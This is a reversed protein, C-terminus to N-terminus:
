AWCLCNGFRHIRQHPTKAPQQLLEDVRARTARVRVNGDAYIQKLGELETQAAVLEGELTAAAEIMAKGQTPVDLATNKSAFNSFDKEATELDQQVQTLRSELFVRERHASSTNVLALVRNLQDVYERTM